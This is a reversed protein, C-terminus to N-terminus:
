WNGTGAKRPRPAPESVEDDVVPRASSTSRPPISYARKATSSAIAAQRRKSLKASNSDDVSILPIDIRWPGRTIKLHLTDGERRQSISAQPEPSGPASSADIAAAGNGTRLGIQDASDSPILTVPTGVGRRVESVQNSAPTESPPAVQARVASGTALVLAIAGVVRRGSNVTASPPKM